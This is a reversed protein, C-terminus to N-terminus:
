SSARNPCLNVGLVPGMAGTHTDLWRVGFPSYAPGPLSHSSEIEYSFWVRDGPQSELNSLEAHFMRAQQWNTDTVPVTVGAGNTLSAFLLWHRGHRYSGDTHFNVSADEYHPARATCVGDITRGALFFGALSLSPLAGAKREVPIPVFETLGGGPAVRKFPVVSVDGASTVTLSWAGVGNSLGGTGEITYDYVRRNGYGPIGSLTFSGGDAGVADRGKIIVATSSASRNVIQLYGQPVANDCRESDSVAHICSAAPPFYPIFFESAAQVGVVSGLAALVVGVAAGGWVKMRNMTKM